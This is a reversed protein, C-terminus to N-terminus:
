AVRWEEPRAQVFPVHGLGKLIQLVGNSGLGKLVAKSEEVSITRDRDGHMLLTPVHVNRAYDSPKHQFANFRNQLGGWFLLLETMPFAPAGHNRIRNAVTHALTDFPCELILRDPAVQLESVARLIAVAAM